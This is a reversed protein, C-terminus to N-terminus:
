LLELEYDLLVLEPRREVFRVVRELMGEAYARRGSVCAVALTALQWSDLHDTEAVSVNFENRIRAKVSQIIQRKDKLSQSSPVRIEITCFGIFATV